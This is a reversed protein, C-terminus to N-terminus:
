LLGAERLASKIEGLTTHGPINRPNVFSTNDFEKEAEDAAKQDFTEDTYTLGSGPIHVAYGKDYWDETMEKAQKKTYDKYFDLCYKITPNIETAKIINQSQEETLVTSHAKNQLSVGNGVIVLIVAGLLIKKM